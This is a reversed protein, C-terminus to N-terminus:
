APGPWSPPAATCGSAPAPRRSRSWGARGAVGRDDRRARRGHGREGALAAGHAIAARGDPAAVVTDPGKYVIVAGSKAAAARAREVKSGALDGFLAAFEGEHPTLIADDLRDPGRDALLRLAGADLVLPHGSALVAQWCARRGGDDAELGPGLLM